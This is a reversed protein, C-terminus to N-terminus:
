LLWKHVVSPLSSNIWTTKFRFTYNSVLLIKCMFHDPLDKREDANARKLFEEIERKGSADWAEGEMGILENIYGAAEGRRVAEGLEQEKRIQVIASVIKNDLSVSKGSQNRL